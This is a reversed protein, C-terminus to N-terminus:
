EGTGKWYLWYDVQMVQARTRPEVHLDQFLVNIKQEKSANDKKNTQKGHRFASAGNKASTPNYLTESMYAKSDEYNAAWTPADVTLIKAFANRVKNRKVWSVGYPYYAGPNGPNPPAPPTNWQRRTQETNQGYSSALSIYKHSYRIQNGALPCALTGPWVGTTTPSSALRIPIGLSRRFFSNQHWEEGGSSAALIWNDWAASYTAHGLGIQRLNSMCQVDNAHARVKNLAPMLMAVLIAIIGVVVLLEVLTFGNVRTQREVSM